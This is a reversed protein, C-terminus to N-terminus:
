KLLPFLTSYDDTWTRLGAIDIFPRQVNEFEPRDLQADTRAVIVWEAEMRGVSSDPPIHLDRAAFHLEGAMQKVVPALSLAINSVHFALVGGPRVHTLYLKMAERSLLHVPISDGSFADIV